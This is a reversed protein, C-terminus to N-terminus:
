SKLYGMLALANKPAYAEFDNNFFIYVTKAGSAAMRRAVEAIEQLEAPTYDHSYWRSRGHLRIYGAQSTVWDLPKQRPSDVSVFTAGCGALLARVEDNLWERRRFEVAVRRPEDFDLIAKRLLDPDVPTQPALQLLLLGLRDELLSASRCFERIESGADVLYKRHTIRRPVKLVYRFGEPVRTRWKQYTQNAFARYFTANIEVTSFIAAYHDFWRSKALGEPYFSGKWHDYTWGSTGVFFPATM